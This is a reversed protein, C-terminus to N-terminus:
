RGTARADAYGWAYDDFEEQLLWVVAVVLTAVASLFLLRRMKRMGTARKTFPGARLLGVTGRRAKTM